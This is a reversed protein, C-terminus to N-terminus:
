DGLFFGKFNESSLSKILILHYGKCFVFVRWVFCDNTSSDRFGLSIVERSVKPDCGICILTVVILYYVLHTFIVFRLVLVVVWSHLIFYSELYYILLHSCLSLSSYYKQCHKTCIHTKDFSSSISEYKYSLPLLTCNVFLLRQLILAFIMTSMILYSVSLGNLTMSTPANFHIIEHLL